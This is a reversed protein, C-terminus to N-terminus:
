ICGDPDYVYRDNLLGAFAKAHEEDTWGGQGPPALRFCQDGLGDCEAMRISWRGPRHQKVFFPRASTGEPQDM